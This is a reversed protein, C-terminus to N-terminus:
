CIMNRKSLAYTRNEMLSTIKIKMVDKKVAEALPKVGYFQAADAVGTERIKCPNNVYGEDPYDAGIFDTKLPTSIEMQVITRKFDKNTSKNTFTREESKIIRTVQIFQEAKEYGAKDQRLCYVDGIMPLAEDSRQYAQVVKSYKSQTSFLTMKSEITAVNYAEIRKLIEARSEGFRTAKFMSYSVTPDSPPKTIAAFAGILPENDSRLVGMYELVAYFGGNIRAISSIPKFLENLAGTLPKGLPMGGGDDTQRLRESPYIKLDQQNIKTRLNTM